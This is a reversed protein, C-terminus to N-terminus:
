IRKSATKPHRKNHVIGLIIVTKEKEEIFFYIHYPFKRPHALRVNKYRIAYAKPTQIIKNLELEIAKTFEIELGDKQEKYWSKAEKLDSAVEEFYKLIYSM